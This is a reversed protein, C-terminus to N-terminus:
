EDTAQDTIVLEEQVEEEEHEWGLKIMVSERPAKQKVKVEVQIEDNPHVTASQGNQKVGITGTKLGKLLKELYKIAQPREMTGSYVVRKKDQEVM